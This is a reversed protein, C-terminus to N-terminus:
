VDEVVEEASKLLEIEANYEEETIPLLLLSTLKRSSKILNFNNDKYFYM